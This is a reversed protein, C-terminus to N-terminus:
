IILYICVNYLSSMDDFGSNPTSQVLAKIVLRGNGHVTHRKGHGIMCLSVLLARDVCVRLQALTTNGTLFM